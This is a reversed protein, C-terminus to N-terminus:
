VKDVIHVLQLEVSFYITFSANFNKKDIIGRDYPVHYFIRSICIKHENTWKKKNIHCFYPTKPNQ